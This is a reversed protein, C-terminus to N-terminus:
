RVGFTVRGLPARVTVTGTPNPGLDAVWRTAGVSTDPTFGWAPDPALDGVQTSIAARADTPRPLLITAGGAMADVDLSSGGPELTGDFRVDGTRSRVAVTGAARVDRMDIDGAALDLVSSGRLTVERLTAAGWGGLHVVGDIGRIDVDSQGRIDLDTHVPVHITVASDHSFAFPRFPLDEAQTVSVVGGQVSANVGTERLARAVNARTLANVEQHQEVVVSGDPGPVIHISAPPADVQVRVPGSVDFSTRNTRSASTSALSAASAVVLGVMTPVTMAGVLVALLKAWVPVPAM